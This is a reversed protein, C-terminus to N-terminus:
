QATSNFELLSNDEDGVSITNMDIGNLLFNSGDFSIDTQYENNRLDVAGKQVLNLLAGSYGNECFKDVMSKGASGSFHVSPSSFVGQRSKISAEGSLEFDGGDKRFSAQEVKLKVLSSLASSLEKPDPMQGKALLSLLKKLNVSALTTKLNVKDFNQMPVMAGDRIFPMGVAYSGTIGVGIDSLGNKASNIDLVFSPEKFLLGERLSPDKVDDNPGFGILYLTSAELAFKEAGVNVKVANVNTGSLEPVITVNFDDIDLVFANRRAYFVDGVCDVNPLSLSAKASMTADIGMELNIPKFTCKGDSVPLNFEETAAKASAGMQFVSASYSGKIEPLENMLPQVIEDINGIGRVRKFKGVISLFSIHNSYDVAFNIMENETSQRGNLAYNIYLRGSNSFFGRDSTVVKLQLGPVKEQIKRLVDDTKSDIVYGIGLTGALSIAAVVMAGFTVYKMVKM